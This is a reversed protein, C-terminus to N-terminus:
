SIEKRNISPALRRALHVVENEAGRRSTPIGVTATNSPQESDAANHLVEALQGPGSLLLEHDYRNSCRGSRNPFSGISATAPWSSAPYVLIFPQPNVM